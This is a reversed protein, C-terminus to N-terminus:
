PSSVEIDIKIGRATLRRYFARRGSDNFDLICVSSRTLGYWHMYARPLYFATLIHRHDVIQVDSPNREIIEQVIPWFMEPGTRVPLFISCDQRQAIACRVSRWIQHRPLCAIVSNTIKHYPLCHPRRWKWPRSYLQVCLSAESQAFMTTVPRVCQTDIDAYVGGYQQVVVYRGVDARAVVENQWNYLSLWEPAKEAMLARLSSEDWLKYEWDPNKKRWTHSNERYRGPVANAGQIWIQHIIAPIKM